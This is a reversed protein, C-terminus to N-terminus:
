SWGFEPNSADQLDKPEILGKLEKLEKLEKLGKSEKPPEKKSSPSSSENEFEFIPRARKSPLSCKITGAVGSSGRDCDTDCDTDCDKTVDDAHRFDQHHELPPVDGFQTGRQHSPLWCRVM